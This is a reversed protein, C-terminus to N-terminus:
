RRQQTRPRTCGSRVNLDKVKVVALPESAQLQRGRRRGPADRRARQVKPRPEAVAGRHREHDVRPDEVPLRELAGCRRRDEDDGVGRVRGHGHRPQGDGAVFDVGHCRRRPHEEGKDGARLAAGGGDKEVVQGLAAVLLDRGHGSRDDRERHRGGGGCWRVEDQGGHGGGSRALHLYAVPEVRM